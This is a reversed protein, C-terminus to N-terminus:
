TRTWDRPTRSRRRPAVGDLSGTGMVMPSPPRSPSTTGRRKARFRRSGPQSSLDGSGRTQPRGTCAAKVPGADCSSTLWGCPLRRLADSPGPAAPAEGCAGNGARPTGTGASRWGATRGSSPSTRGPWSTPRVPPSSATAARAPTPSTGAESTVCPSSREGPAPRAALCPPCGGWTSPATVRATPAGLAAAHWSGFRIRCAACLSGTRGVLAGRLGRAGRARGTM